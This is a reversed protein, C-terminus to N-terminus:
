FEAQRLLLLWRDIDLYDQVTPRIPPAPEFPKAAQEAKAAQEQQARTQLHQAIATPAENYVPPLIPSVSSIQM